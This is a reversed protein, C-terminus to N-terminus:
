QGSTGPAFPCPRVLASARVLRISAICSMRSSRRSSPNRSRGALASRSVTVSSHLAVRKKSVQPAIPAIELTFATGVGEPAIRLVACHFRHRAMSLDRVNKRPLNAAAKLDRLDPGSRDCGLLRRFSAAGTCVPGPKCGLARHELIGNTFENPRRRLPTILGASVPCWRVSSIKVGALGSEM